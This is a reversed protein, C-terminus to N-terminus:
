CHFSLWISMHLMTPAICDLVPVCSHLHNLFLNKKFFSVFASAELQKSHQLILRRLSGCRQCGSTSTGGLSCSLINKSSIRHLKTLKLLSFFHDNKKLCFLLSKVLATKVQLAIKSLHLSLPLKEQSCLAYMYM